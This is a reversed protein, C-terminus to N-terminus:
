RVGVRDAVSRTVEVDLAEGGVAPPRAVARTLPAQGAALTPKSTSTWRASALPRARAAEPGISMSTAQAHARHGLAGLQPRPRPRRRCPGRRGCGRAPWRRAGSRGRRSTATPRTPSADGGSTECLKAGQGGRVMEGRDLVAGGSAARRAVAGVHLGEALVTAAARAWGRGRASHAPQASSTGRRGVLPSSACPDGAAVAEGRAVADGPEPDARVEVVGGHARGVLVAVAPRRVVETVVRVPAAVAGKNPTRARM